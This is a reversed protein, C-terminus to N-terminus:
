NRLSLFFLHEQYSKKSQLKNLSLVELTHNHIHRNVFYRDDQSYQRKWVMVEYEQKCGCRTRRNIVVKTAIADNSSLVFNIGKIIM